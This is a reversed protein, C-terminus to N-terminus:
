LDGRTARARGGLLHLAQRQVTGGLWSALYSARDARPKLEPV